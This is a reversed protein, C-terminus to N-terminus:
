FVLLAIAANGEEFNSFIAIYLSLVTRVWLLLLRILQKIQSKSEVSLIMSRRFSGAKISFYTTPSCKFIAKMWLQRAALIYGQKWGRTWTWTGRETRGPWVRWWSSGSWSTCGPCSSQRWRFWRRWCTRRIPWSWRQTARSRWRCTSGRPGPWTGPDLSWWRISGTGSKDSWITEAAETKDQTLEPKLGIKNLADRLLGANRM